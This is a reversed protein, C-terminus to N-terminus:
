IKSGLKAKLGKKGFVTALKFIIAVTPSVSFLVFTVDSDSRKLREKEVPVKGKEFDRFDNRHKFNIIM